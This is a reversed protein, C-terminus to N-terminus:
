LDPRGSFRKASDTGQRQAVVENQSLFVAQASGLQPDNTVALNYIEELTEAHVSAATLIVASLACAITQRIKM